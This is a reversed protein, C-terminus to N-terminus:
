PEHPQEHEHKRTNPFHHGLHSEITYSTIHKPKINNYSMKSLQSQSKNLNIHLSIIEAACHVHGCKGHVSQATTPTIYM